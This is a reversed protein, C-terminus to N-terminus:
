SEIVNNFPSDSFPFTYKESEWICTGMNKPNNLYVYM